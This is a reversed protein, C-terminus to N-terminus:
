SRLVTGVEALFHWNSALTLALFLLLLATAASGLRGGPPAGRELAAAAVAITFVTWDCAYLM